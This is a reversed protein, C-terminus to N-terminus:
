KRLVVFLVALGLAAAGVLGLNGFGMSDGYKFEVVGSKQGESEVYWAEKLGEWGLKKSLRWEWGFKGTEHDFFFTENGGLSFVHWYGNEGLQHWIQGAQSKSGSAEFKYVYQTETHESRVNLSVM